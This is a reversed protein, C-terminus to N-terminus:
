RLDKLRKTLNFHLGSEDAVVNDVEFIAIYGEREFVFGSKKDPAAVPRDKTLIVRREREIAEVLETWKPEGAVYGPDSHRMQTVWHKHVCPLREGTAKAFTTM